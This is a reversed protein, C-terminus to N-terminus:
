LALHEGLREFASTLGGEAARRTEDTAHITTHFVMETRGGGLDTLTVTAEGFVLREPEVVERYIGETTMETGDDDSVSTVRFTGGPRVDMAITSIRATWGRKGWWRALQDPETWAKWVLVRPAHFVRAITIERATVEETATETM